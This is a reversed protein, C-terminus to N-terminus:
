YFVRGSPIFNALSTEWLIMSLTILLSWGLHTKTYMLFIVTYIEVSLMVDGDQVGDEGM